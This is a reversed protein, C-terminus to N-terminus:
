PDPGSNRTTHKLFTKVACREGTLRNVAVKVSGNYGMGLVVHGTEKEVDAAEDGTNVEMVYDAEFTREGPPHYRGAEQWNLSRGAKIEGASIM